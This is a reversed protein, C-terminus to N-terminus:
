EFALATEEYPQVVVFGDGEFRLQVTEGSGRGVLTKLSMDLHLQPELSGSWAVTTNPDTFVPQGPKVLLTLPEYHTTMAVMGRGSLRINTLGGAAMAAVRLLKIDWQIAGGGEFALLDKGSVILSEEQLNLIFIKKGQDALYLQGQGEAKTLATGEGTVAKKLARGLGHELVGERTFRIGGRYAVMAGRKMWVFNGALNVELTRPSELEFLGHGRDQQATASVFSAITYRNDM